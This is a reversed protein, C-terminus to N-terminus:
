KLIFEDCFTHYYVLLFLLKLTNTKRHINRPMPPQPFCIKIVNDVTEQRKPPFYKRLSYQNVFGNDDAKFNYFKICNNVM